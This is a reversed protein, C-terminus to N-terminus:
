GSSSEPTAPKDALQEDIKGLRALIEEESLNVVRTTQDLQLKDGYDRPNRVRARWRYHFALERKTASDFENGKLVDEAKEDETQASAILAEKVRASRDADVSLWRVFSSKGIGLKKAIGLYSVGDIIDDVIAELGYADLKAAAENRENTM